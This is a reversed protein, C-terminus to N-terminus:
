YHTKIKTLQEIKAVIVKSYKSGDPEAMNEIEKNAADSAGEETKFYKVSPYYPHDSVMVWMGVKASTM